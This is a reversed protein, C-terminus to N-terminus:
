TLEPTQLNIEAFMTSLYEVKDFVFRHTAGDLRLKKNLLKRFSLLLIDYVVAITDNAENRISLVDNISQMSWNAFRREKKEKDNLWLLVNHRYDNQINQKLRQVNSTTGEFYQVFYSENLYLFGTIGHLKNQTTSLKTLRKLDAEGFTINSKSIYIFSEIAWTM